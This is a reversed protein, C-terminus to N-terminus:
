ENGYVIGGGTEIDGITRHKVTQERKAMPDTDDSKQLGPPARRGVALHVQKAFQFHGIGLSAAQM